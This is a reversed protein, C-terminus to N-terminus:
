LPEETLGIGKSQSHDGDAAEALLPTLGKLFIQVVSEPFAAEQCKNIQEIEL